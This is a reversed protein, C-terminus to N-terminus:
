DDPGGQSTARPQETTPSWTATLRARRATKRVQNASLHDVVQYLWARPNKTIDLKVVALVFAEQAVDYADERSLGHRRVARRVLPLFYEIYIRELDASPPRRLSDAKDTRRDLSPSPGPRQAL